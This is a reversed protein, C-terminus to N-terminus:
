KRQARRLRLYGAVLAVVLAVGGSIGCVVPGLGVLFTAGMVGAGFFLSGGLFLGTTFATSVPSGQSTSATFEISGNLPDVVLGFTEMVPDTRSTLPEHSLDTVTMEARRQRRKQKNSQAM